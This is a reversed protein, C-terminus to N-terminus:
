RNTIEESCVFFDSPTFTSLALLQKGIGWFTITKKILRNSFLELSFSKRFFSMWNFINDVFRCQGTSNGNM